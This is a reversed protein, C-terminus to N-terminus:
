WCGCARGALAIKEVEREGRSTLRRAHDPYGPGAEGHRMILMDPM